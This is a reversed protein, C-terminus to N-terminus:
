NFYGDSSESMNIQFPNSSKAPAGNPFLTKRVKELQENDPQRGALDELWYVALRQDGRMSALNALNLAVSPDVEGLGHAVLLATEADGFLKLRIYAQAAILYIKSNAGLKEHLIRCDKIVQEPNSEVSKQALELTESMEKDKSRKPLDSLNLTSGSEREIEELKKSVNIQKSFEVEEDTFAAALPDILDQNNIDTPKNESKSSESNSAILSQQFKVRNLNAKADNYDPDTLLIETLIKEAEDFSKLDTLLNAYNNKLINNSTHIELAEKFVNQAEVLKGLRRLVAGHMSAFSADACMVPALSECWLLCEDFKGIQFLAAAVVYSEGPNNNPTIENEKSVQLVKQYQRDNFLQSLRESIINSAQM